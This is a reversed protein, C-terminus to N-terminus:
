DAQNRVTSYSSMGVSTKTTIQQKTKHEQQTTKQKTKNQKEKLLMSNFECDQALYMSQWQFM